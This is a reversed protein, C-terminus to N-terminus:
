GVQSLDDSPISIEDVCVICVVYMLHVTEFCPQPRTVGAWLVNHFTLRLNFFRSFCITERANPITLWTYLFMGLSMDITM